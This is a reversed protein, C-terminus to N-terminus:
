GTHRGEGVDGAAWGAFMVFQALTAKVSPPGAKFCCQNPADQEASM